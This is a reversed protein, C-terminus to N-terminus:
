GVYGSEKDACVLTEHLAGTTYGDRIRTGLEWISKPYRTECDCVDLDPLPECPESFWGYLGPPRMEKSYKEISSEPSGLHVSCVRPSMQLARKLRQQRLRKSFRTFPRRRSPNIDEWMEHFLNADAIFLPTDVYRDLMQWPSGDPKPPHSAIGFTGLMAVNKGGENWHHFATVLTQLADPGVLVDNDLSILDSYGAVHEKCLRRYMNGLRRRTKCEILEILDRARLFKLWKVLREDDSHDDIVQVRGATPAFALVGLLTMRSLEFRNLTFVSVLADYLLENGRLVTDPNM